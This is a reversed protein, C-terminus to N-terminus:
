LKTSLYVFSFRVGVHVVTTYHCLAQRVHKFYRSRNKTSGMNKEQKTLIRVPVQKYLFQIIKKQLNINELSQLIIHLAICERPLPAPPSPPPLWIHCIVSTRTEASGPITYIIDPRTRARSSIRSFIASSVLSFTSRLMSAFMCCFLILELWVFCGRMRVSLLSM